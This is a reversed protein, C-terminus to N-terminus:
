GADCPRLPAGAVLSVELMAPASWTERAQESLRSVPKSAVNCLQVAESILGLHM